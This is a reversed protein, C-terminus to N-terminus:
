LRVPSQIPMTIITRLGPNNDGYALTGGLQAALGEVIRPGFGESYAVKGGGKDSVILRLLARDEILEIEIPGPLGEYAHKNANIMLETV